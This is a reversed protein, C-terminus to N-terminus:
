VQGHRLRNIMLDIVEDTSEKKKPIAVQPRTQLTIINNPFPLSKEIAWEMDQPSGFHLELKKVIEAV